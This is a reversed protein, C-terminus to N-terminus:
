THSHIGDLPRYDIIPRVGGDPKPVLFMAMTFKLDPNPVLLEAARWSAIARDMVVSSRTAKFVLLAGAPRPLRIGFKLTRVYWDGDLGRLRLPPPLRVFVDGIEADDAVTHRSPELLHVGANLRAPLPAGSIHLQEDPLSPESISLSQSFGAGESDVVSDPPTPLDWEDVGWPATRLRIAALLDDPPIDPLEEVDPQDLDFTAWFTTLAPTIIEKTSAVPTPRPSPVNNGPTARTRCRVQGLNGAHVPAPQLVLNATRGCLYDM